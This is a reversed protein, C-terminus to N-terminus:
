WRVVVVVVDRADLTDLLYLLKDGAGGEGDDDRQQEGGALRFAHIVHTASSVNHGRQQVAAVFLRAEAESRARGAYGVFRSKKLKVQPGEFLKVDAFESRQQQQTADAADVAPYHEDLMQLLATCAFFLKGEGGSNDRERLRVSLSELLAKKDSEKAIWSASLLVQELAGGSLRLTVRAPGRACRLVVRVTGDDTVQCDDGYIAHLVELEESM